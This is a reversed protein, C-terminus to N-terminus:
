PTWEEFGSTDSAPGAYARAFDRGREISWAQVAATVEDSPMVKDPDAELFVRSTAGAVELLMEKLAGGTLQYKGKPDIPMGGPLVEVAPSARREGIARGNVLRELAEPITLEQVGIGILTGIAHEVEQARAQGLPQYQAACVSAVAGVIMEAWNVRTIGEPRMGQAGLLTGLADKVEFERSEDVVVEVPSLGRVVGGGELQAIDEPALPDPLVVRRVMEPITLSEGLSFNVLISFAELILDCRSSDAGEQCNSLLVATMMARPWDAEAGRVAGLNHVIELARRVEDVRSPASKMGDKM